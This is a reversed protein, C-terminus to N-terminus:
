LRHTAAAWGGLRTRSALVSIEPIAPYWSTGRGDGPRASTLAPPFAEHRLAVKLLGVLGDDLGREIVPGGSGPAQEGEQYRVRGPRDDAAAWDRAGEAATLFEEVDPGGREGGAEGGREYRDDPRQVGIAVGDDGEEVGGGGGLVALGVGVGVGPIEAHAVAVDDLSGGEEVGDFEGIEPVPDSGLQRPGTRLRAM